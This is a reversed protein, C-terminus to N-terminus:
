VLGVYFNFQDPAKDGAVQVIAARRVVEAYDYCGLEHSILTILMDMDEAIFHLVHGDVTVEYLRM